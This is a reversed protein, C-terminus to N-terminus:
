VLGVVQDKHARGSRALGIDSGPKDVIREFGPLLSVHDGHLVDKSAEPGFVYGHGGERCVVLPQFGVQQGDIVDHQERHLFLFRGREEVKDVRKM